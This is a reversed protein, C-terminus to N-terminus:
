RALAAECWRRATQSCTMRSAWGRVSPTRDEADSGALRLPGLNLTLRRSLEWKDQFYGSARHDIQEFDYQGMSIGFRYPYTTPNAPDFPVNGPFTFLGTFNTATGQPFAGNRSYAAGAKFTLDGGWSPKIWTFTDDV